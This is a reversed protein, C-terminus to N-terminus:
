IIPALCIMQISETKILQKAPGDILGQLLSRNEIDDVFCSM